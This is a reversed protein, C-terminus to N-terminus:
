LFFKRSVVSMKFNTDKIQLPEYRYTPRVTVLSNRIFMLWKLIQIM